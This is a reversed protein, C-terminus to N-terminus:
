PSPCDAARIPEDLAVYRLGAVSGNMLFTVDSGGLALLTRAIACLENMEGAPGLDAPMSQPGLNVFYHNERLFLGLSGSGLRLLEPSQPGAAWAELAGQAVVPREGSAVNLEREESGLGGQESAFFLTAKVASLNATSLQPAVIAERPRQVATNAWVAALLILLALVNFPTVLRKM